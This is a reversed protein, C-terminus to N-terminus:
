KAGREPTVEDWFAALDELFEARTGENVIVRDALAARQEDTAQRELRRVVDDRNMGAAVAREIRIKPAASVALVVDALKVADPVEALLPVELVVTSPATPDAKMDALARALERTIAPHVIANLKATLDASGFVRAALAGRDIEGDGGVIDEGFTRVLADFVDTGIRLLDHAFEDTDFAFAGRSRLYNAALSKGAGIGGTIMIVFM